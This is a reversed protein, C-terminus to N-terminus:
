KLNQSIIKVNPFDEKFYLYANESGIKSSVGNAFILYDFLKYIREPESILNTITNANINRYTSEPFWWRHPFIVPDQFQNKIKSPLKSVNM